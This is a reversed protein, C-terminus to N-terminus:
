IMPAGCLGTRPLCGRPGRHHDNRHRRRSCHRAVRGPSAIVFGPRIDDIESHPDKACKAAADPERLDHHLLTELDTGEGVRCRSTTHSLWFHLSAVFSRPQDAGLRMRANNLRTDRRLLRGRAWNKNQTELRAASISALCDKCSVSRPDGGNPNGLGAAAEKGFSTV